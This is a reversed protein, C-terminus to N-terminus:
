KTVAEKVEKEKAENVKPLTSLTGIALYTRMFSKRRNVLKKKNVKM